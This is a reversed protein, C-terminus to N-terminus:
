SEVLANVVINYYVGFTIGGAIILLSGLLIGCNFVAYPISMLGAGMASSVLQFVAGRLSGQSIPSFTRQCWSRPKGDILMPSQADLM